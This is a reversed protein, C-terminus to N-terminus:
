PWWAACCAARPAPLSVSVVISRHMSRYRWRDDRQTGGDLRASMTSVGGTFREWYPTLSMSTRAPEHGTGTGVKGLYRDLWDLTERIVLDRPIFHGGIAIVHKKQDPPVGILSFYRTRNDRPVMPDFEGSFMLTPVQVRPLANVPDVEPTELM